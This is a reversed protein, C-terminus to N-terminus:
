AAHARFWAVTDDLTEDLPRFRVDLRAAAHASSIRHGSNLTKVAMPTVLPEQGLLRATAEAVWAFALAAGYPLTFRPGASDTRAALGAIVTGLETDHGAVIFREGAEARTAMRVMATAVDRADAVATRGPLGVPPLRGAIADLVLRGATTPAADGPGFMWGPLVTVVDLGLDRAAEALAADARVKSAFYRNVLRAEDAVDAEASPRDRRSALTGSSSTHVFRRVGAEHAARALAVTADVNLAQLRREHDGDGFYERFYAATHFLVDVGRLHAAFGAVDDLDGRVPTVPLDALQAAAKDLDRALAVVEWGEAVLARVLNNGLLGTSGTVFARM